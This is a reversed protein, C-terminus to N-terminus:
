EEDFNMVESLIVRAKKCNHKNQQEFAYAFLEVWFSEMTAHYTIRISNITFTLASPVAHTAKQKNTTPKMPTNKNLHPSLATTM